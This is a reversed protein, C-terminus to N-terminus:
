DEQPRDTRHLDLWAVQMHYCTPVPNTGEEFGRCTCSLPVGTPLATIRYRRDPHTRSPIRAQLISGVVCSGVRVPTWTLPKTPMQPATPRRRTSPM